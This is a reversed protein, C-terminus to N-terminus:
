AHALGGSIREALFSFSRRLMLTPTSRETSAGVSYEGIRVERPKEQQMQKVWERLERLEVARISGRKM